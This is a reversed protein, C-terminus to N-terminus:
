KDPRPDDGDTALDKQQVKYDAAFANIIDAAAGAADMNALPAARMLAIGKAFVKEDLM